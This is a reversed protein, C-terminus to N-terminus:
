RDMASSNRREWERSGRGVFERRLRELQQRALVANGGDDIMVISDVLNSGSVPCFATGDVHAVFRAGDIVMEKSWKSM